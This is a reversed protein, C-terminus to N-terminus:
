SSRLELQHRWSQVAIAADLFCREFGFSREWVLGGTCLKLVVIEPGLSEDRAVRVKIRM